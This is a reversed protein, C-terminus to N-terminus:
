ENEVLFRYHAGVIAATSVPIMHAFVVYLRAVFGAGAM